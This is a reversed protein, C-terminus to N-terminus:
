VKNEFVFEATKNCFKKYVASFFKRKEDCDRKEGDLTVKMVRKGDTTIRTRKGVIQAPYCIDQLIGEQVSSLTRSRPRMQNGKRRVFSRPLIVREAIFVIDGANSSLKKALERTLSAQIKQFKKRLVYPVFVVLAKKENVPVEVCRTFQLAKLDAQINNVNSAELDVLFRAIRLDLESPNKLKWIKRRAPVDASLAM